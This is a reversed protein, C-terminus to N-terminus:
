PVTLGRKFHSLLGGIGFRRVVDEDLSDRKGTSAVLIVRFLDTHLARSELVETGIALVNKFGILALDCVLLANGKVLRLLRITCCHTNLVGTFLHLLVVDRHTDVEVAWSDVRIHRAHLDRCLAELFRKLSVRIIRPKERVRLTRGQLL